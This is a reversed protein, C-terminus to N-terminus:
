SSHTEANIQEMAWDLDKRKANDPELLHQLFDSIKLARKSSDDRIYTLDTRRRPDSDSQPLTSFDVQFWESFAERTGFAYFYLTFGVSYCDALLMQEPTLTRAQYVEPPTIFVTGRDRQECVDKDSALTLDEKKLFDPQRSAQVSQNWNDYLAPDVFCALGFDILTIKLRAINSGLKPGTPDAWQPSVMVNEPRIDRHVIGKHHMACVTSVLQKAVDWFHILRGTSTLDHPNDAILDFLDTGKIYDTVLLIRSTDPEAIFDLLRPVSPALHELQKLILAERVLSQVIEKQLKPPLNKYRKPVKIIVERSRSGAGGPDGTRTALYVVGQAGESLSVWGRYQQKVKASDELRLQPLDLQVSGKSPLGCDSSM